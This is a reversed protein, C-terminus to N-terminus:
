SDSSIALGNRANQMSASLGPQDVCDDHHWLPLGMEARQCLVKLKDPSGPLAQTPGCDKAEFLVSDACRLLQIHGTNINEM